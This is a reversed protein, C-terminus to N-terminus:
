KIPLQCQSTQHCLFKTVTPLRYNLAHHHAATPQQGDRHTGGVSANYEMSPGGEVGDEAADGVALLRVEEAVGLAEGGDEDGGDAAGQGVV